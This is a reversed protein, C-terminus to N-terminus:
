ERKIFSFSPDRTSYQSHCVFLWKSNMASPAFIIYKSGKMKSTTAYGKYNEDYHPNLQWRQWEIFEYGNNDLIRVKAHTTGLPADEFNIVPNM